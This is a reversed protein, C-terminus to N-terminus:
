SIAEVSCPRSNRPSSHVHGLTPEVLPRYLEKPNVKSARMRRSPPRPSGEIARGIVIIEDSPVTTTNQVHELSIPSVPPVCPAHSDDHCPPPPPPRRSMRLRQAELEAIEEVRRVARSNPPPRYLNTSPPSAPSDGKNSSSELHSASMNLTADRTGRQMALAHAAGSGATATTALAAAKRMEMHNEWDGMFKLITLHFVIRARLLSSKCAVAYWQLSPQQSASRAYELLALGHARCYEPLADSPAQLLELLRTIDKAGWSSIKGKGTDHIHRIAIAPSRIFELLRKQGIRARRASLRRKLPLQFQKAAAMLSKAANSASCLNISVVTDGIQPERQYSPSPCPAVAAKLHAGSTNVDCEAPSQDRDLIALGSLIIEVDNRNLLLERCCEESAFKWALTLAQRADACKTWVNLTCTSGAGTRNVRRRKSLFNSRKDGGIKRNVPCNEKQEAQQEAARLLSIIASEGNKVALQLATLGDKNIHKTSVGKSLLFRVVKLQRCMIAFHLPTDGDVNALELQEPRGLGEPSLDSILRLLRLHGGPVCAHAASSGRNNRADIDVAAGTAGLDLVGFVHSSSASRDPTVLWRVVAVHGGFCARHLPTWGARNALNPNAGLSFLLKVTALHGHECALAFASSGHEDTSDIADRLLRLVRPALAATESANGMKAARLFDSLLLLREATAAATEAALRIDENIKDRAQRSLETKTRWGRLRRQIEIAAVSQARYKREAAAREEAISTAKHFASRSRVHSQILVVARTEADDTDAACTFDQQQLTPADGAMSEEAVHIDSLSRNMRTGNSLSQQDTGSLDIRNCLVRHWWKQLIEAACNFALDRERLLELQKEDQWLVTVPLMTSYQEHKLLQCVLRGDTEVVELRTKPRNVVIARQGAFISVCRDIPMTEVESNEYLLLEQRLHDADSILVHTGVICETWSLPTPM